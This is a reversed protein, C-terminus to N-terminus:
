MPSQASLAFGAQSKRERQGWGRMCACVHEKEREFISLCNFFIHSANFPLPFFNLSLDILLVLDMCTVPAPIM